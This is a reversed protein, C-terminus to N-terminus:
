TICPLVEQRATTPHFPHGKRLTLHIIERSEVGLFQTPFLPLGLKTGPILHTMEPETEKDKLHSAPLFDKIEGTSVSYQARHLKIRPGMSYWASTVQRGGFAPTLIV